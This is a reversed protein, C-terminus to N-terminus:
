DLKQILRKLQSIFEESTLVSKSPNEEGITHLLECNRADRLDQRFSQSSEFMADYARTILDLYEESHRKIKKGKWYLNGTIKWWFKKTGTEKAEKGIKFCVGAQEIKEKFKLSQLFGEMSMCNIGDLVFERRTFNSLTGSFGEKGSYIDVTRRPYLFELGIGLVGYKKEDEETYYERMARCCEDVTKDGFGCRPLIGEQSFLEHFSDAFYLNEVKATLYESEDQKKLVVLDGIKIKQRKEDFLRLEIQKNGSLIGEFPESNLKMEHLNMESM